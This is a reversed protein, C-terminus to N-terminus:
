SIMMAAPAHLMSTKSADLTADGAEDTPSLSPMKIENQQSLNAPDEEGVDVAMTPVFDLDDTASTADDDTAAEKALELQRDIGALFEEGGRGNIIDRQRKPPCGAKTLLEKLKGRAAARFERKQRQEIQLGLVDAEISGQQRRRRMMGSQKLLQMAVNQNDNELAKEVVDVARDTLKLLRARASETMERQWANYAARFAAHGQVWRYLTTRNVGAAEAARVFSCGSHLAVLASHQADSLANTAIGTELSEESM